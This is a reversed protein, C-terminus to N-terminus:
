FYPVSFLKDQEFLIFIEHVGDEEFWMLIKSCEGGSCSGAHKWLKSLGTKNKDTYM